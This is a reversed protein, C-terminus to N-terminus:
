RRLGLRGILARYREVDAAALYNLLRRRQGVLKLLGRRSAHDKPHDRLHETLAAIRESLVAVQVEASGTDTDHRRHEAIIESKPRVIPM